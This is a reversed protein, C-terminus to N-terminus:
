KAMTAFVSDLLIKKLHQTREPKTWIFEFESHLSEYKKTTLCNLSNEPSIQAGNRTTWKLRWQIIQSFNYIEIKM